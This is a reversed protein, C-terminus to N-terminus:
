GFPTINVTALAMLLMHIVMWLLHIAQTVKWELRTLSMMPISELIEGAKNPPQIEALVDLFSTIENNGQNQHENRDEDEM